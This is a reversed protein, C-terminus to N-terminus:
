SCRSRDSSQFIALRNARAHMCVGVFVRRANMEAKRMSFFLEFLFANHQM